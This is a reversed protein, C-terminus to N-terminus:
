CHLKVAIAVDSEESHYQEDSSVSSENTNTTGSSGKRLKWVESPTSPISISKNNAKETHGNSATSKFLILQQKLATNMDIASNFQAELERNFAQLQEIKRYLTSTDRLEAVLKRDKEAQEELRSIRRVYDSAKQREEEYRREIHSHFSSAQQIRRPSNKSSIEAKLHNNELELDQVTARIRHLEKITSLGLSSTSSQSQEYNQKLKKLEERLQNLELQKQEEFSALKNNLETRTTEEISVRARLIDLEIRSTEMTANLEHVLDDKERLERSTNDLTGNLEQLQKNYQRIQEKNERKLQEIETQIEKKRLKKTNEEQSQRMQEEEEERIHRKLRDIECNAMNLETESLTLQNQLCDIIEIAHKVRIRETGSLIPSAMAAFLGETADAVFETSIEHRKKPKDLESYPEVCVSIDTLCQKDSIEKNHNSTLQTTLEIVQFELLENHQQENALQQELFREKHRFSDIEDRLSRLMASMSSVQESEEAELKAITMNALDLQQKLNYEMNFPSSHMLDGATLYVDEDLDETITDLLLSGSEISAESGVYSQRDEDDIRKPLSKKLKKFKCLLVEYRRDKEIASQRLATICKSYDLVQTRYRNLEELKEPFARQEKLLANERLNREYTDRLTLYEDQVHALKEELKKIEGNLTRIRENLRRNQDILPRQNKEFDIIKRKLEAKTQFLESNQISLESLKQEAEEVKQQWRQREREYEEKLMHTNKGFAKPSPSPREVKSAAMTMSTNM